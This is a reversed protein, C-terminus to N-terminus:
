IQAKKTFEIYRPMYKNMITKQNAQECIGLVKYLVGFNQNIRSSCASIQNKDLSLYWDLNEVCDKAIADMIANGKNPEHLKYYYDALQLSGYNHRVTTGPIVQNCYDLAKKARGTEGKNILAGILYVFMTRHTYCMNLTSEDLYVKPDAINGYKFKNMMNDYMEDANVGPGAGKVGIPM